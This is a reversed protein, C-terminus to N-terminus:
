YYIDNFFTSSQDTVPNHEVKKKKNFEKLRRAFLWTQEEIRIFQDLKIPTSIKYLQYKDRISYISL